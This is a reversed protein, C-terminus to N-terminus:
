SSMRAEYDAHMKKIERVATPLLDESEEAILVASLSHWVDVTVGKLDGGEFSEATWSNETTSMSSESEFKFEWKQVGDDMELSAVLSRGTGPQEILKRTLRM